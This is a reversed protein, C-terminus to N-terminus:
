DRYTRDGHDSHDTLRVVTVAVTVTEEAEEEEVDVQSTIHYHIDLYHTLLGTISEKIDHLGSHTTRVETDEEAVEAEEEEEM